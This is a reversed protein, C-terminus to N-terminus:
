VKFGSGWVGFGLGWVGLGLDWFGFGLGVGWVRFELGYVRVGLGPRPHTRACHLPQGIARLPPLALGELLQLHEPTAAVRVQQGEQAEGRLAHASADTQHRGEHCTRRGPNLMIAIQVEWFDVGRSIRGSQPRM